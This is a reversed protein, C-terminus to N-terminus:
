PSDPKGAAAAARAFRDDYQRIVQDTLDNSSPSYLVGAKNIILLYGEKKGIEEVIVQVEQRFRQSLRSDLDRLEAKFRRESAQFDGLKLRYEREREERTEKSMGAAERELRKELDEIRAGMEKLEAEMAQGRHKIEAQAAKGAQAQEFVRALDVVGIRAVDAGSAATCLVLAFLVAGVSQIIKSM